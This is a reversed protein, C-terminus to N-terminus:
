LSVTCLVLWYDTSLLVIVVAASGKVKRILGLLMLSRARLQCGRLTNAM